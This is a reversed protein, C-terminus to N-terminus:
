GRCGSRAQALQRQAAGGVADVVLHDVIQALLRDLARPAGGLAQEGADAGSSTDSRTTRRALWSAVPRLAAQVATVTSVM